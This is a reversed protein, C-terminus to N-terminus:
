HDDAEAVPIQRGKGEAYERGRTLEVAAVIMLVASTALTLLTGALLIGLPVATPIAILGRGRYDGRIAEVWSHSAVYFLLGFFASVAVLDLIRFSTALRGKALSSLFDVRLQRRSYQVQAFAM